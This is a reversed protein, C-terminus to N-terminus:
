MKITQKRSVGATRPHNKLWLKWGDDDSDVSASEGVRNPHALACMEDLDDWM